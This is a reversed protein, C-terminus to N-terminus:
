APSSEPRCRACRGSFTVSEGTIEVGVHAAIAGRVGPPLAYEVDSIRGCSTCYFHAHPEALPEYAAAEAGAVDIRAIMGLAQLRSLGRRVTSFGIGPRRRRAEVYVDSMSLHTGKGAQNVIDLVLAYNKPLRAKPLANTKKM